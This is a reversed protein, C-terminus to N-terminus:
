IRTEAQDPQNSVNQSTKKETEENKGKGCSLRSLAEYFAERCVLLNRPGRNLVQLRGDTM